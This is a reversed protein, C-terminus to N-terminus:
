ASTSESVDIGTDPKRQKAEAGARHVVVRNRGAHKASYLANDAHALLTTLNYGCVPTTSIGFSATVVVDNMAKGGASLGAIAERMENARQAAVAANCDPMLIAFEEGGLRGFLDISKLREKCAAVVRKLTADGAAHGHMDNVSKFHDLDMALVSADRANKACYRLSEQAADFFHQRNSIGTLGDRRALKQFKLQSLKTRYAWGVVIILGALLLLIYLRRTETSKEDVQQKLQLLKNQENLADIQRKKDLVQQHVMQYALARASTDNLYGKDATAYKEYYALAGPDDGQRKAIEYLVKYADAVSRSFTQKIGYDIASQAYERAKALNDTLLYCRAMLAHFHSIFAASHTTIAEKDHATLLQLAAGASGKAILLQARFTRINNTFLPDGIRQCEKIANDLLPDNEHLKGLRYLAEIKQSTAKCAASKDNSDALWRDAYQIALDYQGAQNYLIAAVGFSFNRAMEDHVQSLGDLLKSLNAYADDYHTALAQSNLLTILARTRITADKTRDIVKKLAASSTEYHGLYVSQWGHLYDLYDQQASTLQDTESDLQKLLWLFESNNATKIADARQLQEGPDTPAAHGFTGMLLLAAALVRRAIASPRSKNASQM